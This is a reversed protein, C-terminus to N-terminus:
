PATIAGRFAIGKNQTMEQITINLGERGIGSRKYGGHQHILPRYLSTGNIVVLGCEIAASISFAKEYDKTFVSASLGYVTNNAIEVMEKESAASIIPFVPAFIEMDRAVNMDKSVNVLVTPAFSADDVNGGIAIRAGEKVTQEVQTAARAAAAASILTGLVTEPALPDAPLLGELKQLLTNTFEDLIAEDVVLRKNASCCQGACLTRGIVAMDAALEVDADSLVLLPDNGGLELFVRALHKAGNQYIRAGVETSGTMSIGNVLPNTVLAEGVIEGRGTLCQLAYGPVGADNLWETVKLASLPTEESPKVIAVNGALLAPAIKHAYMEIPFNFPLIAVIIGLPERRTVLYDAELGVQMDLQSAMGLMAGAAREAFGRFVASTEDVEEEAERLPKGTELTIITALESRRTALIGLFRHMAAVREHLPTRAWSVRNVSAIYLARLADDPSANPVADFVESTAPNVVELVDGSASSCREGGIIM